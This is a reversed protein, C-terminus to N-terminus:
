CQVIRRRQITFIFQFFNYDLEIVKLAGGPCWLQSFTNRVGFFNATKVGWFKGVLSQECEELRVCVDKHDIEVGGDEEERLRFKSFRNVM